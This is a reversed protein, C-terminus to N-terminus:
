IRVDFNSDCEIYDKLILQRSFLQFALFHLRYHFKLILGKIFALGVTFVWSTTKSYKKSINFTNGINM